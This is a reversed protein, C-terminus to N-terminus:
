PEQAWMAVDWRVKFWKSPSRPWVQHGKLPQINFTGSPTSATSIVPGKSWKEATNNDMQERSQSGLGSSGSTGSIAWVYLASRSRHTFSERQCAWRGNGTSSDSDFSLCFHTTWLYLLNALSQVCFYAMHSCCPPWILVFLICILVFSGREIQLKLCSLLLPYLVLGRSM